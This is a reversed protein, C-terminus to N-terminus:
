GHGVVVLRIIDIPGYDGDFQGIVEGVRFRIGRQLLVEAETLAAGTAGEGMFVGRTESPLDIQFIAKRGPIKKDAFGAGVYQDLSTSSFANDIFETGPTFMEAPVNTAGRFVTLEQNLPRLAKDIVDIEQVVGERIENTPINRLSNNIEKYRESQYEVLTSRAEKDLASMTPLNETGWENMMVVDSSDPDFVKPNTVESFVRPEGEVVPVASPKTPFKSHALVYEALGPIYGSQEFIMEDLRAQEEPTREGPEIGQSRAGEIWAQNFARELADRVSEVFSPIDLTGNWLGRVLGRLRRGYDEISKRGLILEAVAMSKSMLEIAANQLRSEVM